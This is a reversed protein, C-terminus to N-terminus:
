ENKAEKLITERLRRRIRVLRSEIAKETMDLQVAIERSTEGLFYKHRILDADAPPLEPLLKELRALLTPDETTPQVVHAEPKRHGFFRDLFNRYRNRKRADDTVVSRVIRTLWSWFVAEDDFRRIHRVVRMMTQQTAEKASEEDGRVLVITYRFLRDRYLDLFEVFAAEEQRAMSNTLVALAGNEASGECSDVPTTSPANLPLSSSLENL